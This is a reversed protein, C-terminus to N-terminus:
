RSEKLRLVDQYELLQALAQVYSGLTESNFLCVKKLLLVQKKIVRTSNLRGWRNLQCSKDHDKRKCCQIKHFAASINAGRTLCTYGATM